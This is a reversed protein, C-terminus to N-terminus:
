IAKFLITQRSVNLVTQYNSIGILQLPGRSVSSWFQGELVQKDSIITIAPFFGPNTMSILLAKEGIVQAVRYDGDGAWVFKGQHQSAGDKQFLRVLNNFDMQNNGPLMPQAGTRNVVDSILRENEENAKKGADHIYAMVQAQKEKCLEPIREMQPSLVTMRQRGGFIGAPGVVEITSLAALFKAEDEYFLTDASHPYGDINITWEYGIGVFKGTSLAGIAYRRSESDCFALAKVASGTAKSTASVGVQAFDNIDEYTFDNETNSSVSSCGALFISLSIVPAIGAKSSKWRILGKLM